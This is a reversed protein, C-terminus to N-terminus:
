LEMGHSQAKMKPLPKRTLFQTQLRHYDKQSIMGRDRLEKNFYSLWLYEALAKKEEEASLQKMELEGRRRPLKRKM